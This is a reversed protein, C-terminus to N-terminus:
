DVAVIAEIEVEFDYHLPGCPVVCRAPRHDPFMDQYVDNIAPWNNMNAIYVNTKLIRNRDAGAAEAIDIINQLCNRAQEAPTQKADKDLGPRIPLQGSVYLVGNHLVAPSYHGGPAACKDSSVTKLPAKTM